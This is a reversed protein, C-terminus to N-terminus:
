DVRPRGGQKVPVTSGMPWFIMLLLTVGGIAYFPFNVHTVFATIASLM